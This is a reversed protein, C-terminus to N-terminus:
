GNSKSSIYSCVHKAFNPCSICVSDQARESQQKRAELIELFQLNKIKTWDLERWEPKNWDGTLANLEEKAAQLTVTDARLAASVDFKVQSKTVCEIATIPILAGRIEWGNTSLPPINFAEHLIFPMLDAPQKNDSEPKLLLVKQIPQPGTHIGEGTLV